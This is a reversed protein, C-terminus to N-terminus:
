DAVASLVLLLAVVVQVGIMIWAGFLRDDRGEKSTLLLIAPVALISILWVFFMGQLVRGKNRRRHVPLERNADNM